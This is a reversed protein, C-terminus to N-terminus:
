VAGPHSWRGHSCTAGGVARPPHEGAGAVWRLALNQETTENAFMQYPHDLGRVSVAMQAARPLRGPTYTCTAHSLKVLAHM